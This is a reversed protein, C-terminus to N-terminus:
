VAAALARQGEGVILEALREPRSVEIDDPVDQGTTIYSLKARTKRLCSLVVGFGLAEDLKTFIVRDINLPSFREITELLVREGCTSSLVLHVEHPTVKDFFGQLEKIKLSDRQSRGATDILIIERDGMGTVIAELQRPAMAVELPVDIIQAYTRLQEVAAIRYTDITILGVRRKERLSFNAALKAITTTKGVGTPGVLAVVTPGPGDRPGIPGAAPLMSQLQEALYAQVRDSDRWAEEPLASRVGAVLESALEEAVTNEILNLYTDHLVEPIHSTRARRTELVLQSVMTKLAGVESLLAGNPPSEVTSPIPSGSVASGDVRGSRLSSPASTGSRLMRPLDSIDKAATIEVYPRGGLGFLGGRILSRTGLIVADRGFLRKVQALAEAMTKGQFTKIKM